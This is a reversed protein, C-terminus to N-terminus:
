FWGAARLAKAYGRSVPAEAGDKLTLVARSDAREVATVAGRAVWWSRHTQAGEIGELEIIADTLRMLILDQGLSTHLRLYHDEAEVAYLDAGALKAPLRALFKAPPADATGAHTQTPHRRVLFAIATMVLSIAFVTPLVGLVLSGSLREHGGLVQMGVVLAAIPSTVAAAITLAAKWPQDYWAAPVLWRAAAIGVLAGLVSEVLWEAVHRVDNLGGSIGIVLAIGVCVAVIRLSSGASM